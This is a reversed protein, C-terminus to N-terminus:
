AQTLALVAPNSLASLGASYLRFEGLGSAEAGFNSGILQPLPCGIV